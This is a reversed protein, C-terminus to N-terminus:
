EQVNPHSRKRILAKRRQGWLTRLHMEELALDGLLKPHKGLPMRPELRDTKMRGITGTVIGPCARGTRLRDSADRIEVANFPVFDVFDRYTGNVGADDFWAIKTKLAVTFLDEVQLDGQAILVATGLSRDGAPRVFAGDVRHFRHGTICGNAVRGGIALYDFRKGASRRRNSRIHEASNRELQ